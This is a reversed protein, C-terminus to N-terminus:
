AFKVRAGDGVADNLIKVLDRGQMALWDSAKAGHLDIEVRGGRGGRPDRGADGPRWVDVQEGPEFAAMVQDGGGMGGPVTFSGGTKFGGVNTGRINAVQALGAALAAAAAVYSIPPPFSALAKSAAMYANITAQVIGFAKAAIAMGKNEKSFAGSLQALSGAVNSGAQAWSVGYQQAVKEQMRGIQEATAGFKEMALTNNTMTEQFAEAPTRNEQVLQMGRLKQTNLEAAAAAEDIKQRVAATIPIGSAQAAQLGLDAVKMREKAGIYLEASAIEAQQAIQAKQQSLLFNDLATKSTTLSTVLPASVTGWTQKIINATDTSIQVFEQMNAAIPAISRSAFIDDMSGKLAAVRKETEVGVQNFESLRAGAEGIPGTFAAWLAKFEAAMGQFRISVEGVERALFNMVQLIGESAIKVINGDKAADVFSQSLREMAPLLHATIKLIIGDKVKGLRTLNDNFAEASKATKSDIVIGFKEAEEGAERLGDRGANLLPIMEAGAKGFIAMALATKQAGDKYGEFKGAVEELVQGSTKLTGDTNKVTIGMAAFGKNAESLGNAAAEVMNKSLKGMSKGLTEMSVDSLDAALKLKSLEEVPVGVKQAMKGLNDAENVAGKIAVAMAGAATALAAAAVTLTTGIAKSFGALSGQADKLGKDLAASDAGIVVRLAGIVAGAM